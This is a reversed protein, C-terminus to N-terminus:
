YPLNEIQEDINEAESALEDDISADENTTDEKPKEDADEADVDADEEDDKYRESETEKSDYCKLLTDAKVYEEILYDLSELCEEVRNRFDCRIYDYDTKPTDSYKNDPVFKAMCLTCIELTDSNIKEEFEDVTEQLDYEDKDFHNYYLEHESDELVSLRTEYDELTKAAYIYSRLRRSILQYLSEIKMTFGGTFSNEDKDFITLGNFSYYAAIASLVLKSREETKYTRFKKIEKELYEKSYQKLYEETPKFYTYYSM